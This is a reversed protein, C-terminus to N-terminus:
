KAKLDEIEERLSRVKITEDWGSMWGEYIDLAQIIIEREQETLQLVVTTM